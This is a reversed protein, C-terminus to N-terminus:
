CNVQIENKADMRIQKIHEEVQELDKETQRKDEETPELVQGNLYYNYYINYNNDEKENEKNNIKDIINLMIESGLEKYGKIIMEVIQYDQSFYDSLIEAWSDTPNALLVRELDDVEKESLEKATNM